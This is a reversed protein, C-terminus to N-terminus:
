RNWRSKGALWLAGAIGSLVFCAGVPSAKTKTPTPRAEEPMTVEPIETAPVTTPVTTLATTAPVPNLPAAIFITDDPTESASTEHLTLGYLYQNDAVAIRSGDRSVAPTRPQIRMSFKKKQRFCATTTSSSSIEM